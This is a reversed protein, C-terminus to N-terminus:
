SNRVPTTERRPLRASTGGADRGQVGHSLDASMGLPAFSNTMSAPAAFSENNRCHENRLLGLSETERRGATRRIAMMVSANTVVERTSASAKQPAVM